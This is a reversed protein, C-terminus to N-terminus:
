RWWGFEKSLEGTVVDNGNSAVVLDDEIRVGLKGPLYAGPEVTFVMGERLKEVGGSVIYPAEHVELGLGHGTRHIFYEGLGDTKLSDRAAADVDGVSAGNTAVSIAKQQADFVSRYVKEFAPDEGIVFTRTIDAAYGEFFSVADVVVSEGKRIQRSSTESHPDAARPGSQVMCPDVSEAGNALTEEVVSRALERETIGERLFGPVEFFSTALIEASKRILELEFPEKVVRISELIGDAPQVRLGRTLLHDLFGFPVRGECGWKGKADIGKLLSKFARGPGENDDWSHITLPLSSDRFPGVELKPALLHANG